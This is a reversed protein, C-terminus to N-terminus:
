NSGMKYGSARVISMEFLHQSFAALFGHKRILSEIEEPSPQGSLQCLDWMFSERIPPHSLAKLISTFAATIIYANNGCQEVVTTKAAEGVKFAQEAGYSEIWAKEKRITDVQKNREEIKDRIQNDLIESTELKEKNIKDLERNSKDLKMIKDFLEADNKDLEQVQSRMVDRDTELTAMEEKLQSIKNMHSRITGQQKLEELLELNGGEDVIKKPLKMECTM